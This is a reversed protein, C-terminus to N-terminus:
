LFGVHTSNVSRIMANSLAWSYLGFILVVNIVERYLLFSVRNETGERRMLKGFRHCVAQDKGINRHLGTWDNATHELTRGIYKLKKVGEVLTEDEWEYISFEMEGTRHDLDM